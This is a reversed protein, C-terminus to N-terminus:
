NVPPIKSAKLAVANSPQVRNSVHAYASSRIDPPHECANCENSCIIYEASAIMLSPWPVKTNPPQSAIQDRALLATYAPLQTNHLASESLGPQMFSFIYLTRLLVFSLLGIVQYVQLIMAYCCM